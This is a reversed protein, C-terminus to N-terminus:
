TLHAPSPGAPGLGFGLMPSNRMLKPRENCESPVCIDELRTRPSSRTARDSSHSVLGPQSQCSAQLEGGTGNVQEAVHEMTSVKTSAMSRLSGHSSILNSQFRGGCGSVATGRSAIHQRLDHGLDGVMRKVIRLQMDMLVLDSKGVTGGLASCVTVFQELDIIGTGNVDFTERICQQTQVVIGLTGFLAINREDSLFDLIDQIAVSGQQDQDISRFIAYCTRVDDEIARLHESIAFDRDVKPINVMQQIRCHGSRVRHCRYTGAVLLVLAWFSSGLSSTVSAILLHLESFGRMVRILRLTRLAKVTRLVRWFSISNELTVDFTEFLFSLVLGM